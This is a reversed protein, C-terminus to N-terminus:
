GRPQFGFINYAITVLEEGDDFEEICQGKPDILENLGIVAERIPELVELKKKDKIRLMLDGCVHIAMATLLPANFRKNTMSNLIKDYQKMGDEVQERMKMEDGTIPYKKILGDVTDIAYLTASDFKPMLKANYITKLSGSIVALLGITQTTAKSM